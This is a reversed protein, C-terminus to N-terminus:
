QCKMETNHCPQVSPPLNLSLTRQWEETKLLIVCEFGELPPSMARKAISVVFGIEYKEKEKHLAQKTCLQVGHGNQRYKIARFAGSTHVVRMELKQKNNNRAKQRRTTGVVIKNAHLIQKLVCLCVCVCVCVYLSLSLSFSLSLIRKTTM